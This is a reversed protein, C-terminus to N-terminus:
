VVSEIEDLYRERDAAEVPPAFSVVITSICDLGHAAAYRRAQSSDAFSKVRLTDTVVAQDCGVAACEQATTDLANPVALGSRSLARVVDWARHLTGARMPSAGSATAPRRLPFPNLARDATRACGGAVAALVVVAVAALRM